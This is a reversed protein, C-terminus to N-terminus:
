RRIRDRAWDLLERAAASERAEVIIRIMSETNSARVHVWGSPLSVKIGDTSDVEIREEEVVARFEQLV